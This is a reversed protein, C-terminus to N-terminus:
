FTLPYAIAPILSSFTRTSIDTLPSVAVQDGNQLAYSFDVHTHNVLISDVETHPIGIAEIADKISPTGAFAYVIQKNKNQRSLFDNLSNFFSFHALREMTTRTLANPFSM